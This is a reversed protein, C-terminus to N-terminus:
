GVILFRAMLVDDVYRGGLFFEDRLVGEIQFGCAEYLRRARDNNGLVRLTLKRAGRSRAQQACAEVLQRGVGHGQHVPDVALGNIELVDRHSAIPLYQRVIAYGVVQGDGEAVLVDALQNREGFFPWDPPPPAVPSNDATWTVADIQQIATEDTLRAPRIEVPGAHWRMPRLGIVRNGGPPIHTVTVVHIVLCAVVPQACFLPPHQLVEVPHHRRPPHGSLLGLPQTPSPVRGGEVGRQGLDPGAVSARLQVSGHGVALEGLGFGVLEQILEAEAVV